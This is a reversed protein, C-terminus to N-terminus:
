TKVAEDVVDAIHCVGVDSGALLLTPRSNNYSAYVDYRDLDQTDTERDWIIPIHYGPPPPEVTPM